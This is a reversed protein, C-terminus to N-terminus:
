VDFLVFKSVFTKAFKRGMYSRLLCGAHLVARRSTAVLGLSGCPARHRSNALAHAVLHGARPQPVAKEGPPYVLAVHDGDQLHGRELLMVAIKEARKHLQM